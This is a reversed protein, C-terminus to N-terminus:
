FHFLLGLSLQRSEEAKYIAKIVVAYLEVTRSSFRRWLLRSLCSFDTSTVAVLASLGTETALLKSCIMNM